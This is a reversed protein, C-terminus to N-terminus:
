KDNDEVKIEKLTLEAKKLFENCESALKSAEAYLKVAKELPTDQDEILKVIEELRALKDEFANKMAM